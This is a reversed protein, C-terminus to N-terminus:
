GSIYGGKLYRYVSMAAIAGEGAATILQRLPRRRCDGCAFVGERSSRLSEDTVIFGERDCEVIKKFMDTNPKVGIAIFLGNVALRTEGATNVDEIIVRELLNDGGIDKVRSNWVVEINDKNKIRKQLYDVARLTDRRHILYVRDCIDSLYLAEECATNGGGVVAVKKNKFFFGDCVACYSIGKGLFEGEKDIDLKRLSSGTALILSKARYTVRGAVLDILDKGPVIGRVEEYVPDIRLDKLSKELGRLIDVGQAYPIGVYNEVHGVYLLQGGLMNGEFLEFSLGARRAYIGASMGAIGGGIVALDIEKIDPSKERM